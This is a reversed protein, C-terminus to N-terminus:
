LDSGRGWDSTFTQNLSELINNQSVIIGLERNEDMSASTLNVSGIYAKLGDVLIMKAHMYPSSLSKINVGGKKLKDIDKKNASLQKLSPLIINIKAVKAKDVLLNTIAEDDIVEMQISIESKASSILDTLAPRATNPSVVLHTDKPIYSTDEWDSQFINKVEDVDAKNTDIVGYERNKAFSSTTLNQTMILASTGDIVMSKEHTLAFKSSTCKNKINKSVLEKITEENIGGGGFPHCEILVNVNIGRSNANELAGIINKDSLLYIELLVEKQASNIADVLPTTGSEPEIFLSLNEEATQVSVTAPHAPSYFILYWAFVFILLTLASLLKKM